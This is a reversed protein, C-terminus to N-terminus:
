RVQQTVTIEDLIRGGRSLTATGIYLGPTLPERLRKGSARFAQAQFKELPMARDHIEGDPGAINLTVLDGQTGRFFYAWLVLAPATRGIAESAQGAKIADYDPVKTSFGVSILGGPDYGIEDSWLADEAPGCSDDSPRFPDIVTGDKRLSLHLHPFETRGSMGVRGLLDGTAVSQGPEVRLSGRALHCYQTEWGDGHDIVLGNGCDRGGLDRGDYGGPLDDMEDRVGKVVGSAAALVNVGADMLSTSPLAFDTGKHGDYTASGCFFDRAEPGPDRDVYQQIFCTEGLDCEIPQSLSIEGAAGTAALSLFTALGTRIM